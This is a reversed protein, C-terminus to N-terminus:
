RPLEFLRKARRENIHQFGRKTRHPYFGYHVPRTISEPSVFRIKVDQVSSLSGEGDDPYALLISGLNFQSGPPGFSHFFGNM